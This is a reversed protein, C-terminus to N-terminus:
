IDFHLIYGVRGTRYRVSVSCLYSTVLNRKFVVIFIAGTKNVNRGIEKRNENMKKKEVKTESVNINTMSWNRSCPAGHWSYSLADYVNANTRYQM